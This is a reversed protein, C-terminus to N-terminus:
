QDILDYQGLKRARLFDADASADIVALFSSLVTKANIANTIQTYRAAIEGAPANKVIRYFEVIVVGNVSDINVNATLGIPAVAQARARIRRFGKLTLSDARTTYKGTLYLWDQAQMQLNRVYVTDLNVQAMAAVPLMSAIVLLKKM